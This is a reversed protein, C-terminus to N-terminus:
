SGFDDFLIAEADVGLNDLMRRVARIMMPPGCLYYECDEPATHDMLYREHLVEHIFGTAGQWRDEPRPESLAVVWRFNDHAAALRDFDEVYFLERRSRAGYWFSITRGTRRRELQDFIHARMPAMGVGGGVFVMEAGTETAFFHGFPGSVTVPDGPELSFLYSSVVGPPVTEPAGPPPVAIRVDLTIIGQEGPYNAMSYARATPRATGAELPWLDLRDWEGRFEDGIDFDAFRARYPPCAIQVYSGARFDMIEGAPLELVLEKILTAVNRNSRVTCRWERAGFIEEPVRVAMDQGVTVQCALRAGGAIDRKSLRATETSLVAGGGELVTVRCQGCTGVGGCAAPLHIGAENLAGLLRGGAAATVTDGDNVTIAVEGVAVLGARVALIILVLGIVIVVFLVVGLGIEIM